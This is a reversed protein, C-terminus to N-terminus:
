EDPASTAFLKEVPVRLAAAIEAVVSITVNRKGSEIGSIYTRHLGSEEALREQSWGLAERCLRVNRGFVQQIAM